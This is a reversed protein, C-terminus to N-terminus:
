TRLLIMFTAAADLDARLNAAAEEGEADEGWQQAQFDHDLRSATWVADAGIEGHALALGLILSGSASAVAHLATLMWQDYAAVAARLKALPADDQTVPIVGQTTKLPADFTRAAWDLLPQWSEAQRRCLEAPEDARYCLLDAAGYNAIEDTVAQSNEGVRDIATCALRMLPMDQPRVDDGQDRWEAAIGEALAATPLTLDNKAPTRVTKGDLTVAYGGPGASVEAAKYFRKM